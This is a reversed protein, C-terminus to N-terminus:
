QVVRDGPFPQLEGSRQRVIKFAKQGILPDSSLFHFEGFLKQRQQAFVARHEGGRAINELTFQGQANTLAFYAVMGLPIIIFTVMWAIYPISPLVGWSSKNKKVSTGKM